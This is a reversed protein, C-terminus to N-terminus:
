DALWSHHYIVKEPHQKIFNIVSSYPIYLRKQIKTCSLFFYYHIWRYITIYAVEFLEMLDQITFVRKSKHKNLYNTIHKIHSTHVLYAEFNERTIIWRGNKKYAKLKGSYIANRITSGTAGAKEAAKKVSIIDEIDKLCPLTIINM